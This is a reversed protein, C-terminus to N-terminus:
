FDRMNSNVMPKNVLVPHPSRGRRSDQSAFRATGSAGAAKGSPNGAVSGHGVSPAPLLFLPHDVVANTGGAVRVDVEVPASFGGSAPMINALGNGDTITSSQTVKLIVPM